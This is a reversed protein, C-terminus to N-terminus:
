LEVHLHNPAAIFVVEVEPDDIVTRWDAAARKFGFSATAEEVREPVPDSCAVLVPDYSRETFLTPIRLMSRSHAHGLWGFGIVGVGLQERVRPRGLTPAPQSASAASTM